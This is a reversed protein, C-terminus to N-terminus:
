RRGRKKARQEARWEPDVIREPRWFLAVVIVLLANSASMLWYRWEPMLASVVVCVGYGVALIAFRPELHIAFLGAFTFWIVPLILEFARTDLGLLMMALALLVQAAFLFLVSFIVRRNISTKSLSERAWVGVALGFGFLVANGVFLQTYSRQPFWHATLPFVTWMVGFLMAVFARTRQGVSPDMDRGLRELEAIRKQEAEWARRAEEVRRALEPPPDALESLLVSAAKADGQALEFEVMTVVARRLGERADENEPWARLAQHFGFRCEGFLNYAHLRPEEDHADEQSLAEELQALRDAAEDSLQTSGRHRLFGQLALRLQEVNEFRADPDPDMARTRIRVLEAPLSDSLSRPPSVVSRVIAMLHEGDHPPKGTLIEHLVSGLLYVDTHPGIRPTDGGLMEPAMYCPTGAMETAQAALPFRGTGDDTLAVAIGWDLVYVEGFEGIMVNEPKLDRHVIGRSHAFSVARCVQMLISLNWELPDRADFRKLIREPAHMVDGWHTGEIRKLVIIPSGDTDLGVDYVPVVNPHELEGTVWAERLLKMTAADTRYDPRLTKVAVSRGLAVQTARRVVGMGGEGITDGMELKRDGGQTVRGIRELVELARRGATSAKLRAPEITARPDNEITEGAPGLAQLTEDLEDVSFM